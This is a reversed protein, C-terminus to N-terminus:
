RVRHMGKRIDARIDRLTTKGERIANWAYICGQYIQVPKMEFEKEKIRKLWDDLVASPADDSDFDPGGRAVERWFRDADDADADFTARMAGVISPSMMEPTKISLVDGLWLLFPHEDQDNFVEYKDDGSPVPLVDVYRRKWVIGEVGLKAIHRPLQDLDSQLGQYAGAIDAPSRASRRDDFQRFLLALGDISTCEFYDIHVSLGTPFEGNLKSLMESTHQGNARYTVGDVTAKVWQPPHFLGAAVKERLHDVRKPNLERETPSPPLTRMEEVLELTLPVTESRVYRVMPVVPAVQQDTTSEETTTPLPSGAAAEAVTVENFTEM